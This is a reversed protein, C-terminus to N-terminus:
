SARTRRYLGLRGLVYLTVVHLVYAVAISCIFHYILCAPTNIHRFAERSIFQVLYSELSVESILTILKVDPLRAENRLLLASVGFTFAVGIAIPAFSLNGRFPRLTHVAYCAFAAIAIALLIRQGKPFDGERAMGGLIMMVIYPITETVTFHALVDQSKDFALFFYAFFGVLSLALFHRYKVRTHQHAKTIWYFLVYLALITPIFHYTEYPMVVNWLNQSNIKVGAILLTPLAILYPAYVRIFRRGYWKHFVTAVNTLCFGSCFFFFCNGFFGGFALFSLKSPYLASIHTNIILLTALCKLYTIAANTKKVDTM